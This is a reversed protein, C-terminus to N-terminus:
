AIDRLAPRIVIADPVHALDAWSQISGDDYLVTVFLYGNEISTMLPKLLSDDSQLVAQYEELKAQPVDGANEPDLMPDVFPMPDYLALMIAGTVTLRTGDWTGSIAYTGFTAEGSTEEGDVANWDWGILEPGTCQPPYSELVPGLCFQPTADGLQIVTGQGRVEGPAAIVTEPAPAPDTIGGDGPQTACGALGIVLLPLLAAARRLSTM